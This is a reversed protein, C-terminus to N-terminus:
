RLRGQGNLAAREAIAAPIDLANASADAVTTGTDAAEAAAAGAGGAAGKPAVRPPTIDIGLRIAEDQEAKLQEAIEFFDRGKKALVQQRSILGANIDVSDAESDKLPDPSDFSRAAYKVELFKRFDRSDLVLRGSLLACDLWEAYIRRYFVDRFRNQLTEWTDREITLGMRASSYNVSELDNGLSNYSCDLGTSVTRLAGKVFAGYAVNPHHPDFTALEYGPPLTEFSGPNAEMSIENNVDPTFEGSEGVKLQFFGMKSAALRAGVLEGEIYGDLMKLPLMICAFWSTGRTQNCREPDYLHIVQEAPVRIHNRPGGMATYSAPHDWMWFAVPRGYQNIEVGMRIENEGGSPSLRNMREDIQDPDIADLAFRYPNDPFGPWLRVFAEGDCAWAKITQHEFAVRSLRGDITVCSSWDEWADDIKQNLMKNLKGSNDRVQPDVDIGNPGVVNIALMTLFHRAYANNRRLDRARARIRRNTWRLEDDPTLLSIAWDATLRNIESGRYADRKMLLAKVRKADLARQEIGRRTSDACSLAASEYASLRRVMPTEVAVSELATM